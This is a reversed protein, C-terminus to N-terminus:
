RSANLRRAMKRRVRLSRGRDAGEPVQAADSIGERGSDAMLVFALQTARMRQYGTPVKHKM